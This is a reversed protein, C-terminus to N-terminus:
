QGDLLIQDEPWLPGELPDLEVVVTTGLRCRVSVPVFQAAEGEQRWVGTKGGVTYVAAAPIELGTKCNELIKMETERIGAAEAPMEGCSLLAAGDRIEEVTLTLPGDSWPLLGTLTQGTEVPFPLETRFYWTQGLILKGPMDQATGTPLSWGGWPNEPTLVTELGDASTTFIGAEPAALVTEGETEEAEDSMRFDANGSEGMLLATLDEAAEIREEGEARDYRAAAEDMAARRATLTLGAASRGDRQLRAQREPRLDPDGAQLLAQGKGVLTGDPVVPRWDVDPDAQLPIERRIFVGRAWASRGTYLTGSVTEPRRFETLSLLQAASLVILAGLMWGLITKQKGM